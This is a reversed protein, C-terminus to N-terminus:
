RIVWRTVPPKRPAAVIAYLDGDMYIEYGKFRPEQRWVEIQDMVQKLTLKTTRIDLLVMPKLFESTM